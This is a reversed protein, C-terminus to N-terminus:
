AAGRQRRALVTQLAAIVEAPAIAGGEAPYLPIHGPGYPFWIGPKIRRSFVAVVPTRVAAALHMPGSDHGLFARARSLVLASVRPSLRGALNLTPGSWARALGDSRGVEDASGTLVLGMRPATAGVAALVGTWNEDGWDNEPWKTGISLAVFDSTGEWDTLARRGQDQEAATFCLDWSDRQDLQADGLPALCRALREAEREWRKDRPLYRHSALDRSLPAGVVPAAGCTRFFMLDRLATPVGRSETLYVILDPAFDRIERRLRFLASPHRVGTPYRIPVGRILGSEGLVLEVPAAKGAVPENTLLRREARPFARAVLHLCPLSVVTDGLSGLRYILVRRIENENM